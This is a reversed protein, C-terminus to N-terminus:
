VVNTEPRKCNLMGDPEEISDWIANSSQSRQLYEGLGLRIMTVKLTGMNPAARDENKVRAELIALFDRFPVMMSSKSLENSKRRFMRSKNGIDSVELSIMDTGLEVQNM